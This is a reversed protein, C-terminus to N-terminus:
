CQANDATVLAAYNAWDGGAEHAWAVATPIAVGLMEALVVAPVEAALQQRAARRAARADIGLAGLRKGLHHATIPRGPLHGPFLWSSPAAGIGIHHSRGTAVQALVLMGLPDSVALDYSAFRVSVGTDAVTIRDLTMAAIRSLPQAYLLLFSGAVRDALEIAPDTLLRRITDWREEADLASGPGSKLVPVELTASLKRESTWELFHRADYRSPPGTTLWRDIDGQTCTALSLGGEALWDLLRVAGVVQNRAHSIPTRATPRHDAQRRLRRLVHWTAFAAVIKRDEPREITAVTDTIIRELTALRDDRAALAGNAVLMHRVYNAAGPRAHADLAEHAVATTGTAMARLIPAGAGQRLWNLAKRPTPSSVIADHVGMLLPPVAGDPGAMLEAARRVLACRDCHGREYLKDERGCASCVHGALLM